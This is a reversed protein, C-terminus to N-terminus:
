FINVFIPIEQNKVWLLGWCAVDEDPNYFCLKLELIWSCYIGEDMFLINM